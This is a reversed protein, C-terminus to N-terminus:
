RPVSSAAARPFPMAYFSQSGATTIRLAPPPPPPPWGGPTCAANPRCPGCDSGTCQWKAEYVVLSDGSELPVRMEGARVISSTITSRSASMIGVFRPHDKDFTIMAAGRDMRVGLPSTQATAVGGKWTIGVAFGITLASAIGLITIGRSM